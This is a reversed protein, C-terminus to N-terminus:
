HTKMLGKVAGLRTALAFNLPQGPGWQYASNPDSFINSGGPILSGGVFVFYTRIGAAAVKDKASTYSISSRNDIGDSLVVM